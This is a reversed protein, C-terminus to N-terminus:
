KKPASCDLRLIRLESNYDHPEGGIGIYGVCIEKVVKFYLQKLHEMDADIVETDPFADLVEKISPEDQHAVGKNLYSSYHEHIAKIKNIEDVKFEERIIKTVLKQLSRKSINDTMRRMALPFCQIAMAQIRFLLESKQSYDIEDVQKLIQLFERAESYNHSFKYLFDRLEEQDEQPVFAAFQFMRSFVEEGDSKSM